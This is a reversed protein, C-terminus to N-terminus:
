KSQEKPFHKDYLREIRWCPMVKWAECLGMVEDRFDELARIHNQASRRNWKAILLPEPDDGCAFILNTSGECIPNTCAVFFAGENEGAAEQLEAHSGCFPCPLLEVPVTKTESM